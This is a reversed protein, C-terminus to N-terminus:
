RPTQMRGWTQSTQLQQKKSINEAGKEIDEGRPGKNHSHQHAQHAKFSNRIRNEKQKESQTLEVAKDEVESVGKQAEDLISRM